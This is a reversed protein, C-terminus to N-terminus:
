LRSKVVGAVINGNATPYKKQVEGLVFKMDRMAVAHDLNDIVENTYAKIDDESAEKPLFEQLITLGKKEKEALDFRGADTFQKISDEISSKMKTLMKMESTETYGEGSKELVIMGNKMLRLTNLREEDKEKMASQILADITDRLM